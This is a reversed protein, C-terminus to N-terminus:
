MVTQAGLERILELIDVFEAALRSLWMAGDVYVEMPERDFFVFVKFDRDDSAIHEAM